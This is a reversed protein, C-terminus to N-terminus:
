NSYNNEYFDMLLDAIAQHGQENPHFMKNTFYFHRRIAPISYNQGTIMKTVTETMILNHNIFSYRELNVNDFYSFFICDINNNKAFQQILFVSQAALFESYSNCEVLKYHIDKLDLLSKLTEPPQGTPKINGTRYVADTTINVFEDLRNSYSLHRSQATLGVMFIIKYDKYDSCQGLFNFLQVSLHGISSSPIGLNLLNAGIKNAVLQPWAHTQPDHLESGFTWSDGFAVLLKRM